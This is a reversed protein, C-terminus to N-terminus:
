PSGQPPELAGPGGGGAIRELEDDTLQGAALTIPSGGPGSLESRTPADLGLLDARRRICDLVRALFTPDGAQGEVKETEETGSETQKTTRVQRDKLSRKWGRWAEREVILLRALEKRVWEERADIAIEQWRAHIRKLDRSVTAKGVGLKAAIEEQTLGALYHEAVKASRRAIELKRQNKHM